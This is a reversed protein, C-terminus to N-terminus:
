SSQSQVEHLVQTLPACVRVHWSALSQLLLGGRTVLSASRESQVVPLRARIAVQVSSM